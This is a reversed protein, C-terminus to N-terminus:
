KKTEVPTAKVEPKVPKKEENVRRMFKQQGYDYYTGKELTGVAQEIILQLKLQAIQLDKWAADVQAQVHSDVTVPVITPAPNPKAAEQAYIMTALCFILTLFIIRKM